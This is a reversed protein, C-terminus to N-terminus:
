TRCDQSLKKERFANETLYLTKEYKKKVNMFTLRRRMNSPYKLFEKKAQDFEAKPQFCSKSM